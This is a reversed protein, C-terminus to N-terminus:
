EMLGASGWLMLLLLLLLKMMPLPMLMARDGNARRNSSRPLLM